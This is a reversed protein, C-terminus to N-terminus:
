DHLGSELGKEMFERYVGNKINEITKIHDDFDGTSYPTTISEVTVDKMNIKYSGLDDCGLVFKTLDECYNVSVDFVVGNVVLLVDRQLPRALDDLDDYLEALKLYKEPMEIYWYYGNQGRKWEGGGYGIRFRHGGNISFSSIYTALEVTKRGALRACILDDRVDADVDKVSNLFTAVSESTESAGQRLVRCILNAPDSDCTKIVRGRCSEANEAHLMESHCQAVILCVLISRMRNRTM